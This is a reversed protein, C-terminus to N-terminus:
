KSNTYKSNAWISVRDVIRNERKRKNIEQRAIRLAMGGYSDAVKMGALEAYFDDLGRSPMQIISAYKKEIQGIESIYHNIVAGQFAPNEVWSAEIFEFSTPDGVREGNSQNLYSRGCLEAVVRKIGKEDSFYDLLEGDIHDCSEDNVLEKGCKSCQVVHAIGGMSLTTLDGNIIRNVLENHKKNTCVLIDCYLVTAKEGSKPSTYLVPRLVADLIKGKSLAPIQQHEYYNEAGIFSKFCGLLVPASWANGNNNVLEDTPSEIYYGNDTVNVSSVISCHTFLYDDPNFKTWDINITRESAMRRNGLTLSKWERSPNSLINAVPLNLTHRNAQKAAQIQCGQSDCRRTLM